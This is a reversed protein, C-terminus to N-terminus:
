PAGLEEQTAFRYGTGRVTVVLRPRSPDREVKERLRRVHVAVTSTDGFDWGWVRRLLERKGFVEGPHEVLFELLDFERQTLSLTRGRVSASRAATDLHLPGRTVQRPLLRTRHVREDRKLLGQIRLLLERPSFPKALYDDAGLELGVVKDESDGRASLVVVPTLDGESRVRRLVELGDLGPLMLDLVVLDPKWTRWTDLGAMGDEVVRAQLGATSLYARVVESVTRDDEIILVRAAM